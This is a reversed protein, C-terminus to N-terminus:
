KSLRNLPVFMEDSNKLVAPRVTFVPKVAATITECHVHAAVKNCDEFTAYLYPTEPGNQYADPAVMWTSKNPM